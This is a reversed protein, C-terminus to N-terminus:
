LLFLGYDMRIMIEKEGELESARSRSLAGEGALRAALEDYDKFRQDITLKKSRKVGFAEVAKYSRLVQDEVAGYYIWRSGPLHGMVVIDPALSQAHVLTRGPDEMYHLCFEFYVVDGHVNVTGFDRPIFKILIGAWTSKAESRFVKLSEPNSDIAVVGRVGSKPRLLQGGGAGVYVVVKGKFDYFNALDASLKDRDVVMPRHGVLTGCTSLFAKHKRGAM